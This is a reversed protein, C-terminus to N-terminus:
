RWEASHDPQWDTHDPNNELEPTAMTDNSDTLLVQEEERDDAATVKQISEKYEDLGIGQEILDIISSSPQTSDARDDHRSKRGQFWNKFASFTTTKDGSATAGDGTRMEGAAQEKKKWKGLPM